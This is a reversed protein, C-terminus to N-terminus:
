TGLYWRNEPLIVNMNSDALHVFILFNLVPVYESTHLHMCMFVHKYMYTLYKYVFSITHRIYVFIYNSYDCVSM